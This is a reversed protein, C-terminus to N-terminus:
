FLVSIIERYLMLQHIKAANSFNRFAVIQNTMDRQGKRRKNTQRNGCPVFRNGTSPYENFKTDSYKIYM